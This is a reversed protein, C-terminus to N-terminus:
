SPGDLADLVAAAQGRLEADAEAKTARLIAAHAIPDEMARDSLLALARARVPATPDQLARALLETSAAEQRALGLLAAGRIEPRRDEVAARTLADDGGGEDALREIAQLRM